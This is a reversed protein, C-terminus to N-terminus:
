IFVSNKSERQNPMRIPTSLTMRHVGFKARPGANTVYHGLNSDGYGPNVRFCLTEPKGYALLRPLLTVDDLNMIAGSNLGQVIDVDSLNNGTFIIRDGSLGLAQALNIEYVSAADIGAGQETLLRAVELNNCAKIAYYFKFDDYYSKAISFAKTYNEVIKDANYIYTPTGWKRAIDEVSCGNIFIKDNKLQM